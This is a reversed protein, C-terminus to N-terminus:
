GGHAKLAAMVQEVIAKADADVKLPEANLLEGDNLILLWTEDHQAPPIYKDVEPLDDDLVLMAHEHEVLYESVSGTRLLTVAQALRPETEDTERLILVTRPGPEVPVPTWDCKCGPWSVGVVLGLALTAIPIWIWKRADIM